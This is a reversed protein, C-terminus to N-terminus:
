CSMGYKIESLFLLYLREGESVLVRMAPPYCPLLKSKLDLWQRWWGTGGGAAVELGM